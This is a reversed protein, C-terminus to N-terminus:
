LMVCLEPAAYAVSKSLAASITLSPRPRQRSGAHCDVKRCTISNLSDPRLNVNTSSRFRTHVRAAKTVGSDGYGDVRHSRTHPIAITENRVLAGRERRVSSKPDVLEERQEHRKQREYTHRSM